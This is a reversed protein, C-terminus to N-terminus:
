DNPFCSKCEGNMESGCHNCFDIEPYDKKGTVWDFLSQANVMGEIQANLKPM